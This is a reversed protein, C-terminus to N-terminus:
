RRLTNCPPSFLSSQVPVRSRPAPPSCYRLYLTAATFSSCTVLYALNDAITDQPAVPGHVVTSFFFPLCPTSTNICLLVSVYRLPSPLSVDQIFIKGAGLVVCANQFDM